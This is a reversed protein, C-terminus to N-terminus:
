KSASSQKGHKEISHFYEILILAFEEFKIEAETTEPM